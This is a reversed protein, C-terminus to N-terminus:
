TLSPKIKKTATIWTDCFDEFTDLQFNPAVLLFDLFTESGFDGFLEFETFCIL